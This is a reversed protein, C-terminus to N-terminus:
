CAYMACVNVLNNKTSFVFCTVLSSYLLVMHNERLPLTFFVCLFSSWLARHPTTAYDRHVGEGEIVLFRPVGSRNTPGKRRYNGGRGLKSLGLASDRLATHPPLSSRNAPSVPLPSFYQLYIETTTFDPYLPMSDTSVPCVIPKRSSKLTETTNKLAQSFM